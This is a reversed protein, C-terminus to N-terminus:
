AVVELLYVVIPVLGMLTLFTRRRLKEGAFLLAKMFLIATVFSSLFATFPLYVPMVPTWERLLLLRLILYVPSIMFLLELAKRPKIGGASLVLLVLGTASLEGFMALGQAVGSSIGDLLTPEDEDGLKRDMGELPASKGRWCLIGVLLIAAGIIASVADSARPNLVNWGGAAIPYGISLTFLSAYAFYRAEASFNKRLAKQTGVAILDRFYFLVAFIVGLYSPVVYDTYNVIATGIFHSVAAGEPGIPLWSALAIIFGTIASSVYDAPVVM